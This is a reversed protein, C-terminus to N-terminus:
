GGAAPLAPAAASAILATRGQRLEPVHAHITARSVGLLRAISSITNTPNTLLERAHRVQEPLSRSVALLPRLDEPPQDVAKAGASSWRCQRELGAPKAWTM